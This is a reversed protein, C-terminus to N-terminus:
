APQGLREMAEDLAEKMEKHIGRGEESTRIQVSKEYGHKGLISYYVDDYGTLKKLDGKIGSFAELMKFNNSQPAPAPQPKKLDEIKKTAVARQAQKATAGGLGSAANGDDDDATLGLLGSLGYRRAYTIASGVSQPKSDIPRMSLESAIWQGSKHLLITAVTVAGEVCSPPQLIVISQKSLAPRCAEMISTLDAYKSGFHPNSSDKSAVEIEATAMVLAASVQDFKASHRCNPMLDLVSLNDETPQM